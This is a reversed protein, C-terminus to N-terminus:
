KRGSQVNVRYWGGKEEAILGSQLFSYFNSEQRISQNFLYAPFATAKLDKKLQVGEKSDVDIPSVALGKIYRRLGDLVPDANPDFPKNFLVFLNVPTPATYVCRARLTGTDECRGRETPRDDCDADTTCETVGFISTADDQLLGRAVASTLSMADVVGRYMTDNIMLRPFLPGDIPTREEAILHDWAEIEAIQLQKGDRAVRAEIDQPDFGARLAADMWNNNVLNSNRFALYLWFHNDDLKQMVLRRANEERDMSGRAVDRQAVEGLISALNNKEDRLALYHVQVRVHDGFKARVIQLTDEVQRTADDLSTGYLHVEVVPTSTLWPTLWWAGVALILISIFIFIWNKM